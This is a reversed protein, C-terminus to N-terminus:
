RLAQEQEETAPSIPIEAEIGSDLRDALQEAPSVLLMQGRREVLGGHILRGLVLSVSERTAGVLECLLRYRAPCLVIRGDERELDRRSGHSGLHRRRATRREVDHTRAPSRAAVSTRGVVPQHARALTAAAGSRLRSVAGHESLPDGSGRRSSRRDRLPAVIVAGRLRVDRRSRRGM